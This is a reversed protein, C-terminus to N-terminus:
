LHLLWIYSFSVDLTIQNIISKSSLLPPSPSISPSPFFLFVSFPASPSSLKEGIGEERREHTSSIKCCRVKGIIEERARWRIM